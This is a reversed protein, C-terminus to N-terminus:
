ADRVPWVHFEAHDKFGVGVAGKHLYLCYAWGQEYGSDTASWYEERVDRFPHGGPLAPDARSCDTLSELEMIEPLRWPLGTEAALGAVAERAAAHDVMGGALDTSEMWILGTMRDLMGGGEAPAFRPEPWPLGMRLAGDQGTGACEVPEGRADFCARQGTVFLFDSEGRVPWVVADDTKRGFFMRGGSFQVWWAYARDRASSTSTWCKGSWVNVFPHNEPLAPERRAHDILSYLERRNPLRWDAFGHRSERNMAAVLELAEPWSLGTEAAQASRPWVLGTLTDVVIEGEVAFRKEPQEIRTM